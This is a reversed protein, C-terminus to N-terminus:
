SGFLSFLKRSSGKSAKEMSSSESETLRDAWIDFATHMDSKRALDIPTGSNIANVILDYDNPIGVAIERHLSAEIERESLPNKRSFRNLVIDINEDPYHLGTLYQISRIANGPETYTNSSLPTQADDAM